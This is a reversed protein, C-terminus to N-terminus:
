NGSISIWDGLEYDWLPKDTHDPLQSFYLWGGSNQDDGQRFIFPFTERNTWLWGQGPHYYWGDTHPIAQGTVQELYTLSSLGQTALDAQVEALAEAKAEAKAEEVAKESEEIKVLNYSSPNDTVAKVGDSFGANGDLLGLQYGTENGEDFGSANGDAYGLEYGTSNGLEYGTSNGEEFGEEKAVKLEAITRLSFDGPNTIVIEKGEDVGAAKGEDYERLESELFFARLATDQSTPNLGVINTENFDNFGDGDTDHNSANTEYVVVELYNSLGDSDSDNDDDRSFVPKVTLDSSVNFSYNKIESLVNGSSNEEWNQFIFGSNETASLQAEEGFYYSDGGAITGPVSTINQQEYIDDDPQLVTIYFAKVPSLSTARTTNGRGLQGYENFGVAYLNGEETLFLSHKGGAAVKDVAGDTQVEEPPPSVLVPTSYADGTVGLQSKDNWGVGEMTGNENLFFNHNLGAAVTEIKASKSFIRIPRNRNWNTSDGLQGYQNDGMAWVSGDTKIYFSANGGAFVKDVGMAEVQVPSSSEVESGDGLQGYTNDGFAWLSGNLDLYLSHNAGAAIASVNADRIKVPDSSNNETGDGLQGYTNDGFGWLSGNEDLYLSHNAGATVASVNADRIKVPSSSNNETGDGLQGSSNLGMAFLVGGSKIFLSHNDGTAIHTVGSTVIENVTPNIDVTKGDGLQGHTNRGFAWLSGSVSNGEKKLLLTHNGGASIDTIKVASIAAQFPLLLLMFLSLHLFHNLSMKKLIASTHPKRDIMFKKM